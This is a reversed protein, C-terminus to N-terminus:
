PRRACLELPGLTNSNHRYESEANAWEADQAIQWDVVELAIRKADVVEQEYSM